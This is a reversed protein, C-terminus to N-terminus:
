GSQSSVTYGSWSEESPEGQEVRLTLSQEGPRFAALVLLLGRWRGEGPLQWSSWGVTDDVSGGVRRWGARALQDAFHAETKSVSWDTELTSESTWHGSGGGGHQGRLRAEAPASLSPLRESGDPGMHRGRSLYPRADWDLRVRLDTPGGERAVWRISLVPGQEAKRFQRSEGRDTSVFGAHMPGISDLVTWGSAGLDSQFLAVLEAFSDPADIVAEMRTPRGRQTYLASGLVRWDPPIPIEAAMSGPLQRVYLAVSTQGDPHPYKLLRMCLAELDHSDSASDSAV